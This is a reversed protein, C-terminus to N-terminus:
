TLDINVSNIFKGAVKRVRFAMLAKQEEVARKMKLTTTKELLEFSYAYQRITKYSPLEQNVKKILSVIMEPIRLLSIGSAEIAEKDLVVKASVLVEGDEETDAFVIAEKVYEGRSIWQELEEPFVKKGSKLVIMSKIRGTIFLCGNKKEIRGVDGTHFWGDSDLAEATAEPNEYYGQMVMPGKVLIEGEHGDEANDIALTANGMPLGVTGPILNEPNCAAIVPATETLGYGQYIDIGIGEFFLIIKPDIPAAGCIGYRFEGGFFDLVEKFVKRRVDIGIKRLFGTIKIMRSVTKLKGKEELGAQIKKYFTEFLIPVGIMLEAKYEILNKQIYRLGDCICCCMGLSLAFLLGCTSEFTHHMSLVSLYKSGAPFKEVQAIGYVDSVLNESSLMVGKAQSTTGSTFLLATIENPDIEQHLVSLDGTKLLLHGKELIDDFRHFGPERSFDEPIETTFKAGRLCIFAEIGHFKKQAEKMVDIFSGDYFVASVCGRELLGLVEEEPLLRDLPVSIGLGSLISSHAVAWRYSNEGIVAIKKGFLGMETLIMRMADMDAKFESFTKKHIEGAATERFIFATMDPFKKATKEYLDRIDTYKEAKFLPM